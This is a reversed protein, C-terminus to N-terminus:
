PLRNDDFTDELKEFHELIKKLEPAPKKLMTLERRTPEKDEEDMMSKAEESKTPEKIPNSSPKLAKMFHQQNVGRKSYNISTQVLINSSQPLELKDLDLMLMSETKLKKLDKMISKRNERLPKVYGSEIKNKSLNEKEDGDIYQNSKRM